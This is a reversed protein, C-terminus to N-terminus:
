AGKRASVGAEEEEDIFLDTMDLGLADAIKKITPPHHKGCLVRSYSTHHIGAQKALSSKTLGKIIRAKEIKQTDFM